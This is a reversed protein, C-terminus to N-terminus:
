FQVTVRHLEGSNTYSLPYNLEECIQQMISLGLGISDSSNEGSVFRSFYNSVNTNKDKGTNEITLENDSMVISITGKQVNHVIANKIANILLIEILTRSTEIIVESNYQVNIKIEKFELNSGFEHLIGELMKNMNVKERDVYVGRGIKTLLILGKNIRSLRNVTEMIRGLREADKQTISASQLLIETENRIVSLPTLLEHSLNEM